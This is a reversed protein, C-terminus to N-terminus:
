WKVVKRMVVGQETTIRVFYLGAQLHSIDIVTHPIRNATHPFVNRGYVDFVEISQVKFKLSQVKFEGGTPNPHLVIDEIDKFDKFGLTVTERVHNSSDAVCGNAYYAVVYYEYNGVPLNEDLYSPETLMQTTIRTDNRFVHYGRINDAANVWQLQISNTNVIESHLSTTHECIVEEYEYNKNLDYCFTAELIEGYDRYYEICLGLHWGWSDTSEVEILRLIYFVGQERDSM